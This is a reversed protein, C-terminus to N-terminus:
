REGYTVENASLTFVNFACELGMGTKLVEM